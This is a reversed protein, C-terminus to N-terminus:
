FKNKVDKIGCKECAYDLASWYNCITIVESMYYSIREMTADDVDSSYGQSELDERTVEAVIFRVKDM